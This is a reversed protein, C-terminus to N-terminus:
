ITYRRGMGGGGPSGAGGTTGSTVSAIQATTTSPLVTTPSTLTTGVRIRRQTEPAGPSTAEITINQLTQQVIIAAQEAVGVDASGEVYVIPANFVNQVRTPTPMVYGEGRQPTISVREPGREGALFLTPRWVVGEVGRQGPVVPLVTPAGETEISGAPGAYGQEAALRRMEGYMRARLAVMDENFQRETELRMQYARETIDALEDQKQQELTALDQIHQAKLAREEERIAAVDAVRQEELRQV